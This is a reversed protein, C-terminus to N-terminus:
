TNKWLGEKRGKKGWFEKYRDENLRTFPWPVEPLDSKQDGLTTVRGIHM